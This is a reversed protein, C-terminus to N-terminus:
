KFQHEAPLTRDTAFAIEVVGGPSFQSSLQQLGINRDEGSAKDLLIQESYVAIDEVIREHRYYTLAVPDIDVEGYGRYFLPIEDPDKWTVVGGGIFMLDRERPALKLTDWDVIYLHGTDDILVNGGHIDAHCLVFENSQKQLISALYDAQSVLRDIENRKQVVLAALEASVPDEFTRKDVLKQFYKVTERWHNSFDERQLCDTISSPLTTSHIFKLARGFEFWQQESLAVDFGSQGEIFPSVTLKFDDLLTWIEGSQNHLPAIINILGQSALLEPVIVPLDDFDGRRLKVFYPTSDSTVAKYVATDRDAGLPLFELAAVHLAYADRLCHTITDHVSIM